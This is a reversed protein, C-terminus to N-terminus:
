KVGGYTLVFDKLPTCIPCPIISVELKLCTQYGSDLRDGCHICIGTERSKDFAEENYSELMENIKDTVLLRM